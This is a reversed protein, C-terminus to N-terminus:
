LFWLTNQTVNNIPYEIDGFKQTIRAVKNSYLVTVPLSKQKIGVWYMRSFQVVQDLLKPIEEEDIFGGAGSTKEINVRIPFPFDSIRMGANTQYRENNTVLYVGRKIKFALGSVPMIAPYSEDFIVYSDRARDTIHLVVYPLQLKLERMADSLAREEDRSMSKYFHVVVRKLERAGSSIASEISERFFRALDDTSGSRISSFREFSGDNRFCVTTGLALTNSNERYAGLGIVLDEEIPRSLRWPVGGLKALMAISINPLFYNFSPNEINDRFVVQSSINRKLLASKVHYYISRNELSPDDKSIPSIYIAFYTHGQTWDMGDLQGDISARLSEVSSFRITKSADLDMPIGVLKELGPFGKLGKKLYQFLKNALDKDQEDFVFFIKVNDAVVDEYPGYNKLGQFNSFHTNGGSFELLNSAKNLVRVSGDKVRVFGSDQVAVMGDINIDKVIAHYINKVEDYFDKYKNRRKIITAPIGLEDRIDKNLVYRSNKLEDYNEASSYIVQGDVIVKKLLDVDFKIDSVKGQSVFSVGSYVLQLCWQGKSALWQQKDHVVKLKFTKCCDFHEPGEQEHPLWLSIGGGFHDGCVFNQSRFYNFFTKQLLISFIRRHLSPNVIQCHREPGNEEGWWLEQGMEFEPFEETRYKTIKRGGDFCQDSYYINLDDAKISLPILNTTLGQIKM